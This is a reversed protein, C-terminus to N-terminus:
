CGGLAHKGFCKCCVHMGRKCRNGKGAFKCGGALNFNWCIFKGEPTKQAFDKLEAPPTLTKNFNPKTNGDKMVGRAAGQKKDQKKDKGPPRMPSDVRTPQSSRPLPLLLFAVAPENMATKMLVDIPKDVAGAAPVIAGRLKEAMIVFLEKDASLCQAMSISHFNQIAPRHIKQFLSDIWSMHLQYSLLRSQDYALARRLFANRVLLESSTDTKIEIDANNVKFNGTNPDFKFRTERKEGQLEQIRSCCRDPAVYRLTNDERQQEIEDILWHSPELEGSIDVGEGLRDKQVQLRVTREPIAMKRPQADEVREIRSRMESMTLTHSEFMLRRM